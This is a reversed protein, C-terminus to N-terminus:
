KLQYKHKLHSITSSTTYVEKGTAEKSSQAKVVIDTEPFSKHSVVSSRTGGEHHGLRLGPSAVNFSREHEITFYSYGAAKVVEASRLLAFDATQAAPINYGAYNVKWETHSIRTDTYGLDHAKDLAHYTQGATTM